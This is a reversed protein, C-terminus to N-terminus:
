AVGGQTLMAKMVDIFNSVEMMHLQYFQYSIEAELRLEPTLLTTKNVLWKQREEELYVYREEAYDMMIQLPNM